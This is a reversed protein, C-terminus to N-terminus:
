RVGVSGGILQNVQDVPITFPGQSGDNQFMALPPLTETLQVGIKRRKDHDLFSRYLDSIVALFRELPESLPDGAQHDYIAATLTEVTVASGRRAAAELRPLAAELPVVYSQQYV